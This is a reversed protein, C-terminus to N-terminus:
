RTVHEIDCCLSYYFSLALSSAAIHCLRSKVTPFCCPPLFFASRARARPSVLGETRKARRDAKKCEERVRQFRHGALTGAQGVACLLSEGFALIEEARAMFHLMGDAVSTEFLPM